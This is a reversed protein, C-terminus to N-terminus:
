ALEYRGYKKTPFGSVSRDVGVDLVVHRCGKDAVGPVRPLPLYSSETNRAPSRNRRLRATITQFWARPLASSSNARGLLGARTGAEARARERLATTVRRANPAPRRSMM